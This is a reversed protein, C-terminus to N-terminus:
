KKHFKKINNYLSHLYKDDVIVTDELVSKIQYLVAATEDVTRGSRLSLKDRFEQDIQNTNLKYNTRVMEFFHQIMKQALNRNNRKNYYLSAITEVFSKSDNVLPKVIPIINQKRRLNTLVYILIGFLALLMATRTSKHKWIESFNSHNPSRKVGIGLYISKVDPSMYSLVDELYQHNNGQLLAYNSFALPTSMVILRGQGVEFLVANALNSDITSIVKAANAFTDADKTDKIFQFGEGFIPMVYANSVYTKNKDFGALMQITTNAGATDSLKNLGIQNNSASYWYKNEELYLYKSLEKGFNNAILFVDNGELLWNELQWMEEEGYDISQALVIYASKQEPNPNNFITNSVTVTNVKANKFLKPMADNLVSFGYPKSAKANYDVTWDTEKKQNCATLFLM